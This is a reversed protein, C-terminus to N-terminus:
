FFCIRRSFCTNIGSSGFPEGKQLLCKCLRTGRSVNKRHFKFSRLPSKKVKEHGREKFLVYVNKWLNNGHQCRCYMCISGRLKRSAWKRENVVIIYFDTMPVSVRVRNESFKFLVPRTSWLTEVKSPSIFDARNDTAKTSSNLAPKLNTIAQETDQHDIKKVEYSNPFCEGLRILTDQHQLEWGWEERLKIRSKSPAKRGLWFKCITTSSRHFLMKIKNRISYNRRIKWVLLSKVSIYRGSLFHFDDATTFSSSMTLINELQSIVEEDQIFIQTVFNM